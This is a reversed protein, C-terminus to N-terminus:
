VANVFEKFMGQNVSPAKDEFIKEWKSNMLASYNENQTQQLDAFSKMFTERQKESLLETKLFFNSSAQGSSQSAYIPQPIGEKMLNFTVSAEKEAHLLPLAVKIIFDVKSEKGQSDCYGKMNEKLTQAM